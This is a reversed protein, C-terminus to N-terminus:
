LPDHKRHHFWARFPLHQVLRNLRDVKEQDCTEKVPVDRDEKAPLKEGAKAIVKLVATNRQPRQHTAMFFAKQISFSLPSTRDPGRDCSIRVSGIRFPPSLLAERSLRPVRPMISPLHFRPTNEPSLTSLGTSGSGKRRCRSFSRAISGSTSRFYRTIPPRIVLPLSRMGM